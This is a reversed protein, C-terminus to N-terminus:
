RPRRARAVVGRAPGAGRSRHRVRPTPERGDRADRRPRPPPPRRPPRRRRAHAGVALQDQEERGIAYERRLNEATELMGGPVPHHVGGATVRGRGLGDQLLVGPGAKVGWRMATSYFPANSMSEAGGALGVDSA